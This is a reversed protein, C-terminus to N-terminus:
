CHQFEEEEEEKLLCYFISSFFYIYLCSVLRGEAAAAPTVLSVLYPLFVKNKRESLARGGPDQPSVSFLFLFFFFVTVFTVSGVKEM